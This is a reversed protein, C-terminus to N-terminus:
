PFDHLDIGTSESKVRIQGTLPNGKKGGSKERKGERKKRKKENEFEFGGSATCITFRM